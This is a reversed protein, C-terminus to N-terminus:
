QGSSGNSGREHRILAVRESEDLIAFVADVVIAITEDVARIAIARWRAIARAASEEVGLGGLREVLATPRELLRSGLERPRAEPERRDAQFCGRRANLRPRGIGRTQGARGRHACPTESPESGRPFGDVGREVPAATRRPNSRGIEQIRYSEAEGALGLRASPAAHVDEGTDAVDIGTQLPLVVARDIAEDFGRDRAGPLEEGEGAAVDGRLKGTKRRPCITAACTHGLGLAPIEAFAVVRNLLRHLSQEALPQLHHLATARRHERADLYLSAIRGAEGPRLRIAHRREPHEGLEFDIEGRVDDVLTSRPAQVGGIQAVITPEAEFRVGRTTPREADGIEGRGAVDRSAQNPLQL